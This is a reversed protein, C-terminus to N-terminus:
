HSSLRKIHVGSHSVKFDLNKTYDLFFFSFNTCGLVPLVSLLPYSTAEPLRPERYRPHDAPIFAFFFFTRKIRPPPATARTRTTTMKARVKLM